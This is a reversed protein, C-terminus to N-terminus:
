DFHFSYNIDFKRLGEAFLQLMRERTISGNYVFYTAMDGLTTPNHHHSYNNAVGKIPKNNIDDKYPKLYPDIDLIKYKKLSTM